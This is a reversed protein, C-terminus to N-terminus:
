NDEEKKLPNLLTEEGKLIRNVVKVLKTTPLSQLRYLVWSNSACIEGLNLNKPTYM